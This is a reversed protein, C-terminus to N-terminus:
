FYLGETISRTSFTAPSVCFAVPGPFFFARSDRFPLVSGIEVVFPAFILPFILATIPAIRGYCLRSQQATFSDSDM